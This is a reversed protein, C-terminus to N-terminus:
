YKLATANQSKSYQQEDALAALSEWKLKMQREKSKAAIDIISRLGARRSVDVAQNSTVENGKIGCKRSARVNLWM